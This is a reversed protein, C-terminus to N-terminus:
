QGESADVKAPLMLGRTAQPDAFLAKVSPRSLVLIAFVGLVTGFPMFICEVCAVVLCFTPKTHRGLNRGALIMCIALTWGALVMFGGVLAFFLGFIAPPGDGMAGLLIAIGVVVHIIPICAFLGTLGGVIYHFISLLKLHELDQSTDPVGVSM